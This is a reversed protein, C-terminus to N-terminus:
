HLIAQGSEHSLFPNVTLPDDSVIDFGNIIADAGGIPVLFLPVVEGNGRDIGVIEFMRGTHKCKGMARVAHKGNQVADLFVNTYVDGTSAAESM